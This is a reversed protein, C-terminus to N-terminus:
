RETCDCGSNLCNKYRSILKQTGTDFFDATQSSLWTKVYGMFENNKFRQSRLRNKLYTSLHYESAALYPSYPSDDFLEWHFHELLARTCAATRPHANDSLLVVGSILMGRMKNQIVRRLKKPMESYVQSTVTTEQQMFKVMLMGKRDWFLTAMLKRASLTQKFKKPKNPSHIHMWQKSQEKTGVNM